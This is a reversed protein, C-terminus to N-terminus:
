SHYSVTLTFQFSVQLVIFLLDKLEHARFQPLEQANLHVTANRVLKYIIFTNEDRQVIPVIVLLANPYLKGVWLETLQAIFLNPLLIQSLYAQFSLIPVGM